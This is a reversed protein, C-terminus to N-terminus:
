DSLGLCSVCLFRVFSRVLGYQEAVFVAVFIVSVVLLAMQIAMLRRRGARQSGEPKSTGSM